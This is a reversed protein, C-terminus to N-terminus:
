RTRAASPYTERRVGAGCAFVAEFCQIFGAALEDMSPPRAMLRAMSTVPKDQIGCPVITEWHQENPSVNLALGHCTTWQKLAIGIAAVKAGDVWVGTYGSMRDGHIDYQALLQLVVEELARIYWNVSPRWQHLNLIPYAVLQGPGHYTVDGGRDTEVCQIGARALTAADARIHAKRARRGMTITPTHELLFVTSACDGRAVSAQVRQQRAHMAAYPVLGTIHIVEVSRM